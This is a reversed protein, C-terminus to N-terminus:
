QKNHSNLGETESRSGAGRRAPSSGLPTLPQKKNHSNLGETESRSGAGRRAPSSKLYCKSVGGKRSTNKRTAVVRNTGM